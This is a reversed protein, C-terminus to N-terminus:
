EEVEEIHIGSLVDFDEDSKDLESLKYDEFKEIAEEEDVAYITKSYTVVAQQWLEYKKLKM